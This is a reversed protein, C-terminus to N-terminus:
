GAARRKFAAREFRISVKNEINAQPSRAHSARNITAVTELPSAEPTGASKKSKRPSALISDDSLQLRAEALLAQVLSIRASARRWLLGVKRKDFSSPLEIKLLQLNEPWPRAWEPVLSVGLKRDVLVAIAELSDLEYRDKTHLGHAKLYNDALRGGWQKRDYRIFPQTQLIKHADREKIGRHALVILPEERWTVWEYTKQLVFEPEIIVAADLEGSIVRSYLENSSGPRVFFKMQPYKAALESLIPPLVGTLASSVAGLNLEGSVCKGNAIGRLDRVGSLLAQAQPLIAWGAETPRMTRGSRLVLPSKLERELAHLRQTVAAATLNLQRAAEAVSGHEVVVVFSELFDMDM